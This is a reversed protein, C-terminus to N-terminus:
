KSEEILNISPDLDQLKALLDMMKPSTKACMKFMEYRQVKKMQDDLEHEIETILQQKKLREEYAELDIRSVIWKSAKMEQEISLGSTETVMVTKPEKNVVVNCWDGINLDEIDTFYSYSKESVVGKEFFRVAIIKKSM